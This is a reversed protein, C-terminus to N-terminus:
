TGDTIHWLLYLASSSSSTQSSIPIGFHLHGNHYRNMSNYNSSNCLTTLLYNLLRPPATPYSNNSRVILRIAIIVVILLIAIIVVTVLIALMVVILIIAIIVVTVLIAIMVVILLIAIM